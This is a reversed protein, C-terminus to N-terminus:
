KNVVSTAQCWLKCRNGFAKIKSDAQVFDLCGKFYFLLCGFVYVWADNVIKITTSLCPFSLCSLM